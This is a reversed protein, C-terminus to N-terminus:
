VYELFKDGNAAFLIYESANFDVLLQMVAQHNYRAAYHLAGVEDSDLRCPVSVNGHLYALICTILYPACDFKTVFQVSILFIQQGISYLKSLSVFLM